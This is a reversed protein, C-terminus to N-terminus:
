REQNSVIQEVIAGCGCGIRSPVGGALPATSRRYGRPPGAQQHCMDLSNCSSRMILTRCTSTIDIRDLLPGPHTKPRAVVAPLCTCTKESDIHYGCPCPKMAANMMRSDSVIRRRALGHSSGLSAATLTPAAPLPARRRITGSSSCRGAV